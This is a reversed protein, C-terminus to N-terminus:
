GDSHRAYVVFYPAVCLARRGVMRIVGNLCFKLINKPLAGPSFTWCGSLIDVSFGEGRFVRELWGIDMLHECWNGTCPDCTNTPHDPVYDVTGRHQYEDVRKEIDDKPLGRTLRALNELQVLSLKPAYAAIIDRRVELYARVTDREKWGRTKQRTDHEAERHRRMTRRVYLPNHTNAGSAHVVVFSSSSLVSLRKVHYEIDYIHEIVDYSALADVSLSNVRCYQVLDDIDGCVVHDL